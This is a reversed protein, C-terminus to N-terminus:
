EIDLSQGVMEAVEKLDGKLHAMAIKKARATTEVVTDPNCPLTVQMFVRANNYDGLNATFGVGWSVAAKGEAQGDLLTETSEQHIRGRVRSERDTRLKPTKGLISRSDPLRKKLM